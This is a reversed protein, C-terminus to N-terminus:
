QRCSKYVSYSSKRMNAATLDLFIDFFSNKQCKRLLTHFNKASIEYKSLKWCQRGTKKQCKARFFEDEGIKLGNRSKALWIVFYQLPNQCDDHFISLRALKFKSLTHIPDIHVSVRACVWVFVCVCVCVCLCVCEDDVMPWGVMLLRGDDM